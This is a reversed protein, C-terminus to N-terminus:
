IPARASSRYLVHRQMPHGSPIRPHNFDGAPDHNMGIKKMVNQSPTNSPTTIAVVEELHLHTFAFSLAAAAAETAFGQGWAAKSLRWGIEVCPTFSAEFGTVLLGVFGIFQHNGPQEVAWAGWGRQSIGARIRSAERIAEETTQVSSFYKRVDVDANMAVWPALDSDKWQRLSLRKTRLEMPAAFTPLVLHNSTM